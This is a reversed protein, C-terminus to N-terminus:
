HAASKELALWLHDSLPRILTEVKGNKRVIVRKEPSSVFEGIIATDIRKESIAKMVKDASDREAAILLSGSAILQLPDLKFFRCIKETEPAIHIKEEYVKAGL